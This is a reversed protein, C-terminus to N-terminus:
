SPPPRHGLHHCCGWHPSVIDGRGAAALTAPFGSASTSYVRPALESEAVRKGLRLVGFGSKKEAGWYPGWFLGYVGGNLAPLPPSPHLSGVSRRRAASSSLLSKGELSICVLKKLLYFEGVGGGRFFWHKLPLNRGWVLPAAASPIPTRVGGGPEADCGRQGGLLWRSLFGIEWGLGALVWPHVLAPGGTVTGEPGPAPPPVAAGLTPVPASLRRTCGSAAGCGGRLMEWM